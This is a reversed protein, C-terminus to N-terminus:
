IEGKKKRYENAIKDLKLLRHNVGSKGLPPNFLQGLEKLNAEAHDLRLEAAERLNKTLKNFGINDRIYKINEIQRLSAEITKGLNATECNVIRNVNNRVDKLIRINELEMLSNHAGIINLFDVINEGEKLYVVYYGKRKVIKSNIDFSNIINSLEEANELNNNTIELHYTKEPDSVSGSSLFAGRLYAKKCCIRNKDNSFFSKSLKNNLHLKNILKKNNKLVSIEIIYVIHKKLRINRRIVVKPNINCISKSVSFFKRAFGANETTIRILIIGDKIRISSGNKIVGVLEYRQCCNKLSEIRCLENKV